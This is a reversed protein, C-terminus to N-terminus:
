SSCVKVKRKLADEYWSESYIGSWGPTNHVGYGMKKNVESLRDSNRKHRNFAYDRGLFRYHLLKIGVDARRAGNTEASHRGPVFRIPCSPQFVVPKSQMDDAVGETVEEYIQGKTTPFSDALMQYGTTELVGIGATKAARLVAVLDPHHVFEDADVCMVWDAASSLAAPQTSFIRAFYEDDIHSPAVLRVVKPHADLIQITGDDSRDDYVIIREAFQEYHRLWYGIM